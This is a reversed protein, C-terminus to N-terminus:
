VRIISGQIEGTYTLSQASIRSSAVVSLAATIFAQYLLCVCNGFVYGVAATQDCARPLSLIQAHRFVGSLLIIIIYLLNELAFRKITLLLRIQNFQIRLITM